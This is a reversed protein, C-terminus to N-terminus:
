IKYGAFKMHYMDLSKGLIGYELGKYHTPETYGAKLANEKNRFVKEIKVKCFRPTDVWDGKKM